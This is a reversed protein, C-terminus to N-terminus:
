GQHSRHTSSAGHLGTIRRSEVVPLSRHLSRLCNRQMGHCRREIYGQSGDLAPPKKKIKPPGWRLRTGSRPRPVPDSLGACHRLQVFGCIGRHLGQSVRGFDTVFRIPEYEDVRGERDAGLLTACDHPLCVHRVGVNINVEACHNIVVGLVDREPEHRPIM